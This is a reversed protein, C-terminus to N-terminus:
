VAVARAALRADIERLTQPRLHYGGCKCAVARSGFYDLDYWSLFASGKQCPGFMLRWLWFWRRKAPRNMERKTMRGNYAPLRSNVM